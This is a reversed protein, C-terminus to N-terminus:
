FGICGFRTRRFYLGSLHEHFNLFEGMYGDVLDQIDQQPKQLRPARLKRNTLSSPMYRFIFSYSKTDECQDPQLFCIKPVSKEQYKYSAILGMPKEAQDLCEGLSNLVDQNKSDGARM